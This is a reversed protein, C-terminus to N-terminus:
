TTDEEAFVEMLTKGREDDPSERDFFGVLVVRGDRQGRGWGAAPWRAHFLSSAYVVLRNPEMPAVWYRSWHSLDAAEDRLLRDQEHTDGTTCARGHVAHRFFATGCTETDPSEGCYLVWAYESGMGADTHIRLTADIEVTSLRGFVYRTVIPGGVIPRVTAAIPGVVWRRVDDPLHALCFTDEGHRESQFTASDRAWREIGTYEPCVGDFIWPGGDRGAFNREDEPSVLVMEVGLCGCYHCREGMNLCACNQCRWM